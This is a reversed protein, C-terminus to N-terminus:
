VTIVVKGRARETEVYRLAEAAESLPYTKDIVPTVKGGEILEKLTLLDENTVKAIFAVIRHRLLRARAVGAVLRAMPGGVGKGAGVLVLTGGPTLARLCASLSPTGGVDVILDYRQTGRTFDERSYDIVQDAGISRVLDLNDASTVGTVDAGFAKALQVAFTGVGGGAGNVLVRQEPQIGGKDRLAQLATMGAVPVAAAEEFTLNGPKPVFAGGSVYEAFAGTRVGFAADGPKLDTVNKGVAEVVGAADSGPTAEKPRRVGEILRIFSPSARM